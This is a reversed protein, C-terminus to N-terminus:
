MADGIISLQFFYSVMEKNQSCSNSVGCSIRINGSGKVVGLLPTNSVAQSDQLGAFIRVHVVEKSSFENSKTFLLQFHLSNVDGSM